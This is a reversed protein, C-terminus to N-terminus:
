PRPIGGLVYLKNASIDSDNTIISALNASISSDQTLQEAVLSAVGAADVLQDSVLSAIEAEEANDTIYIEGHVMVQTPNTVWAPTTFIFGLERDVGSGVLAVESLGTVAYRIEAANWAAAAGVAVEAGTSLATNTVNMTVTEGSGLTGLVSVKVMAAVIVGAIPVQHPMALAPSADPGTQGVVYLTSDVPDLLINGRCHLVYM